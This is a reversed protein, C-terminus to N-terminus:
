LKLKSLNKKRKCAFSAIIQSFARTLPSILFQSETPPVSQLRIGDMRQETWICGQAKGGGLMRGGAM